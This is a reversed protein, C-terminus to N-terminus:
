IKSGVSAVFYGEGWLITDEGGADKSPKGQGTRTM